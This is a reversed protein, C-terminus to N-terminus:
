DRRVKRFVLDEAAGAAGGTRPRVPAPRASDAARSLQRQRSSTPPAPAARSALMPSAQPLTRALSTHTHPPRRHGPRMGTSTHSATICTGPGVRSSYRSRPTCTPCAADCVDCRRLAPPRAHCRRRHRCPLEWACSTRMSLRSDTPSAPLPLPALIAVCRALLVAAYVVRLGQTACRRRRHAAPWLPTPCCHQTAASTATRDGANARSMGRNPRREARCSSVTRPYADAGPRGTARVARFFCFARM